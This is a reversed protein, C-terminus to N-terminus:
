LLRFLLTPSPVPFNSQHISARSGDQKLPSITLIIIKLRLTRFRIYKSQYQRDNPVNM